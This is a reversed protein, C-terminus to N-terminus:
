AQSWSEALDQLFFALHLLSLRSVGFYFCVDFVYIYIYMLYM